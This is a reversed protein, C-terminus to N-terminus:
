TAPIRQIRRSNATSGLSMDWLPRGGVSAAFDQGASSSPSVIAGGAPRRRLLGGCHRSSYEGGGGGRGRLFLGGVSIPDTGNDLNPLDNEEVSGLEVGDKGLENDDVQTEVVYCGFLPHDTEFGDRELDRHSINVYEPLKEFDALEHVLRMIEKCDKRLAKRIKLREMKSMSILNKEM